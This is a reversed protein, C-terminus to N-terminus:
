LSERINFICNPCIFCFLYHFPHLTFLVFKVIPIFSFFDIWHYKKRIGRRPPNTIRRNHTKPNEILLSVIRIVSRSLISIYITNKSMRICLIFLVSCVVNCLGRYGWGTVSEPLSIMTLQHPTLIQLRELMPSGEDRWFVNSFTCWQHM